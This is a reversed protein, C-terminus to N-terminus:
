IASYVMLTTCVYKFDPSIDYKRLSMPLLCVLDYDGGDSYSEENGADEVVRGAASSRAM